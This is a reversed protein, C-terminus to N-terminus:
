KKGHCSGSLLYCCSPTPFIGDQCTRKEPFFRFYALAVGNKMGILPYFKSQTHKETIKLWEWQHFLTGHPSQSVISDWEQADNNQAIRIEVTM